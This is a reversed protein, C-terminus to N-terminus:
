RQLMAFHEPAPQSADVVFPTVRDAMAYLNEQQAQRTQIDAFHDIGAAAGYLATVNGTVDQAKHFLDTSGYTATGMMALGLLILKM